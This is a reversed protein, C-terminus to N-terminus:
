VPFGLRELLPEWLGADKLAQVADPFRSEAKEPGLTLLPELIRPIPTEPPSELFREVRAVFLEGKAAFAGRNYGHWNSGNFGGHPGPGPTVPRPNPSPHPLPGIM